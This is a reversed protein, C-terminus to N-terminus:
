SPNATCMNLKVHFTFTGPSSPATVTVTLSYTSGGNWPAAYANVFAYSATTQSTGYNYWITDGASRTQLNPTTYSDVTVAAASAISPFNIQLDGEVAQTGANTGTVTVQIPNGVQVSSPYNVSTIAPNPVAAVPPTLATLALVLAFLGASLRRSFRAVRLNQSMNEEEGRSETSRRVLLFANDKNETGRDGTKDGPGRHDLDRVLTPSM